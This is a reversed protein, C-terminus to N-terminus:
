ARATPDTADLAAMRTEDAQAAAKQQEETKQDSAALEAASPETREASIGSKKELDSIARKYLDNQLLTRNLRKELAKFKDKLLELEGKTVTYVRSQTELRGKLRRLEKDLEAAKARDKAAQQELREIKEKEAESLERVVKTAKEPAPEPSAAKKLRGETEARLKAVEAQAAALEARVNELQVSAQREVAEREKVLDDGVKGAEKQDHLKKKAQKLAEKAEALQTKAEEAEKRKKELDSEAKQRAKTEADLRAAVDPSAHGGKQGFFLLGMCIVLAVSVLVLAITM